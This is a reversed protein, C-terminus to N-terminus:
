VKQSRGGEPDESAAKSQGLARGLGEARHSGKDNLQVKRGM